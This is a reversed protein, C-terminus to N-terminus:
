IQHKSNAKPSAGPLIRLLSRFKPPAFHKSLFRHVVGSFEQNGEQSKSNILMAYVALLAFLSNQMESIRLSLARM